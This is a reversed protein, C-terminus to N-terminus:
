HETSVSSLKARRTYSLTIMPNQLSRILMAHVYVVFLDICM